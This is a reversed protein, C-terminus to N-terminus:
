RSVSLVGRAIETAKNVMYFTYLTYIKEMKEM